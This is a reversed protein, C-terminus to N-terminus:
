DIKRLDFQIQQESYSVDVCASIEFEDWFEWFSIEYDDEINELSKMLTRLDGLTKIKENIKGYSAM